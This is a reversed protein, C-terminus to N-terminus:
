EAVQAAVEAGRPVGDRLESWLPLAAARREGRPRHHRLGAHVQHVGRRRVTRPRPGPGPGGEVLPEGEAVLRRALLGAAGLVPVRVEAGGDEAGAGAESVLESGPRSRASKATEGPLARGVLDGTIFHDEMFTIYM